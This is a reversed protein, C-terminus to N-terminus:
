QPPNRARAGKVGKPPKLPRARSVGVGGRKLRVRKCEPPPEVGGAACRPSSSRSRRRSSRRARGCGHAPQPRSPQRTRTAWEHTRENLNPSAETPTRPRGCKTYHIEVDCQSSKYASKSAMERSLGKQTQCPIKGQVRRGADCKISPAANSASQFCDSYLEVSETKPLHVQFM